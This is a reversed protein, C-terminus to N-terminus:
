ATACVGASQQPRAARRARGVRLRWVGVKYFAVLTPSSFGLSFGCMFSSLSSIGICVYFFFSVRERVRKLQGPRVLSERESDREEM